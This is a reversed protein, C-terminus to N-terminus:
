APRAAGRTPLHAPGAADVSPTPAFASRSLRAVIALDFWARWYAGRLTTPWVEAHKRALEWQVIVDAHELGTGPDRLLSSLIAGSGAFPLNSVVTFPERPWNWHRADAEVVAVDREGFRQRLRAALTADLELAVVSAGADALASTLVGTGAGIDV